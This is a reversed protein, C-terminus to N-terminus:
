PRGQSRNAAAKKPVIGLWLLICGSLIGALAIECFEAFRNNYEFLDIIAPRPWSSDPKVEKVTGDCYLFNGHVPCVALVGTPIEENLNMGSPMLYTVNAARLHQFDTARTKSRDKPCLLILPTSLENSMVRFHLAANSDFGNTGRACFEMTGGANTSLNFPYKDDHDLAWTKFALGIQKLNNVCTIRQPRPYNGSSPLERVAFAAAIFATLFATAGALQCLQGLRARNM